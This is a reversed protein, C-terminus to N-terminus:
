EKRWYNSFLVFLLVFISESVQVNGRPRPLPSLGAGDCVEQWPCKEMGM